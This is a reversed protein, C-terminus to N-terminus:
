PVIQYSSRIYMLVVIEDTSYKSYWTDEYTTGM